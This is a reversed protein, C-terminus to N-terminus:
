KFSMIEKFFFGNSRFALPSLFIIGAMRLFLLLLNIFYFPLFSDLNLFNVVFVNNDQESGIM